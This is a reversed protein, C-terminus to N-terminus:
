GVTDVDCPNTRGDQGTSGAGPGEPIARGSRKARLGPGARSSVGAPWTVLLSCDWAGKRATTGASSSDLLLFLSPASTDVCVRHDRVLGACRGTDAPPGRASGSRFGARTRDTIAMALM